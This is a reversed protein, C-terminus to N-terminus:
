PTSQTLAACSGSTGAMTSSTTTTKRERRNAQRHNKNNHRSKLNTKRHHRHQHKADTTRENHEKPRRNEKQAYGSNQLLRRPRNYQDMGMPRSITQYSSCGGEQSRQHQTQTRHTNVGHTTLIKMTRKRRTPRLQLIPHTLTPTWSSDRWGWPQQQRHMGKPCTTNTKGQRTSTGM